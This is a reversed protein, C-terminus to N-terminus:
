RARDERLRTGLPFRDERGVDLPACPLLRLPPPRSQSPAPRNRQGRAADQAEAARRAARRERQKQASLPM